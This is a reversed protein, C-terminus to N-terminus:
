NFVEEKTFLKTEAQIRNPLCYDLETETEVGMWAVASNFISEWSLTPMLRGRGFNYPGDETIDEPYNGHIKGGKVSGGMVFYNGAWAHDSGEGSNATLTRGFDSTIVLSANDWLSQNIMEDTFSTLARNLEEFRLSLKAKVEQVVGGFFFFLQSYCM